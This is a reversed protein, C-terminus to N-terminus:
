VHLAVGSFLGGLIWWSSRLTVAYLVTARGWCSYAELTHLGVCVGCYLLYFFDLAVCCPPDFSVVTHDLTVAIICDSLQLRRSRRLSETIYLIM